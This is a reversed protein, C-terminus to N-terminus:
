LYTGRNTVTVTSKDVLINTRRLLDYLINILAHSDHFYHNTVTGDKKIFAVSYFISTSTVPISSFATNLCHEIESQKSDIGHQLESCYDHKKKDTKFRPLSNLSPIFIYNACYTFDFNGFIESKRCRLKSRQYFVQSNCNLSM